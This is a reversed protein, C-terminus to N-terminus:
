GFAPRTALTELLEEYSRAVDTLSHRRAAQEAGAGVLRRLDPDAACTLIAEALARADGVPFLWGSLGHEVVERSGPIDSAILVGGCAQTELYVLAQCEAASPMVVMDSSCLLEPMRDYELWGTFRFRGALGRAHCEARVADMCPGDGAIVFVIRHDRAAAIEAAHVIDLPRKLKKMNSAHTVVLDDGDIDLHSRLAASAPAPRFRNLDVPNRVVRVEAVGLSTLTDRTHAAPTVVVDYGQMTALLPDALARPYSGNMIGAVTSGHAVLARPVGNVDIAYPAFSERGVLLVDPSGAALTEALMATVRDRELRRYESSGPFDPSTQLYPMLFRHEDVSGNGARSTQRAARDAETIPGIATIRHGRGSLAELLQWSMVASGGQHPPLTGVYLIDLGSM